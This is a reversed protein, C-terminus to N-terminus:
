HYTSEDVAFPAKPAKKCEDVILGSPAEADVVLATDTKAVHTNTGAVRGVLIGPRGHNAMLMLNECRLSPHIILTSQALAVSSPFLTAVSVIMLLTRM